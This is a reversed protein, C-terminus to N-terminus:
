VDKELFSYDRVLSRGTLPIPKGDQDSLSGRTLLKLVLKFAEGSNAELVASADPFHEKVVARLAQFDSNCAPGEFIWQWEKHSLHTRQPPSSSSSSSFSSSPEFGKGLREMAASLLRAAAGAADGDAGNGDGAASFFRRRATAAAAVGGDEAMSAAILELFVFGLQYLDEAVGQRAYPGLDSLRQAGGLDTLRVDLQRTLLQDTTTLWVSDSSVANHCFGSRHVFDLSLLAKRMLRRVFAWRKKQRTERRFYDLGEVVQPLPPYSRATKFATADWEFLLWLNGADPAKSRPFSKAWRARFEPNLVREDTRLHGLLTPFPVFDSSIGEDTNGEEHQQQQLENWRRALKRTTMLERRGFAEGATSMYEKLFCRVSLPAAAARESGVLASTSVRAEFIRVSTARTGPKDPTSDQVIEIKGLVKVIEVDQAKLAITPPLMRLGACAAVLQGLVFTRVFRAVSM